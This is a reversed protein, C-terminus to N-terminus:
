GQGALSARLRSVSWAGIEQADVGHLATYEVATIGPESVRVVADAEVVPGGGPLETRVRVAAGVPLRRVYRFRMGGASVDLLQTEVPSGAHTVTVNGFVPIRVASRRDVEGGNDAIRFRLEGAVPGGEVQGDWGVPIMGDLYTLSCAGAPVTWDDDVQKPTLLIFSGAAAVVRCDVAGAGWSLVTEQGPRLPRM